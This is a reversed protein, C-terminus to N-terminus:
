IDLLNLLEATNSIKKGGDGNLDKLVDKILSHKKPNLFAIWRRVQLIPLFIKYKGMKPYRKKLQDYPAFVKSILYGFKGGRRVANVAINNETDGYVGAPLIYEQMRETIENKETGSFWSSALASANESFASLEGRSVFDKRKAKDGEIRTDLIWLDIFSRLGCGGSTFHKAMHAVHYYYFMEDLLKHEAGGNVLVTYDWASNLLETPKPIRMDEILLFHLELHVGSPSSLSVDHPTQCMYSYDLKEELLKCAREIDEHKLLIDLDSSTRMWPSPYYDRMVAGKLLVFPLDAESFAECIAAQETMISTARFVAAFKYKELKKILPQLEKPIDYGALAEAIIPLVDHAKALSAVGVLASLEEETFTKKTDSTDEECLVQRVLSLLLKYEIKM